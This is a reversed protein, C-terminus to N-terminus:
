DKPAEEAGPLDAGGTDDGADSGADDPPPSPTPGAAPEGDSAPDAPLQMVM